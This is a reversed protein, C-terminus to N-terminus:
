AEVVKVKIAQPMRWGHPEARLDPRTAIYGYRKEIYERAEKRTKFLKPLLGEYLIYKSDGDLNNRSHWQAAWITM